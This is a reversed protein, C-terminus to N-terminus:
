EEVGEAPVDVGVDGEGEDPFALVEWSLDM